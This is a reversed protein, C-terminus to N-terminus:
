QKEYVSLFNYMRGNARKGKQEITMTKLDKSVTRTGAAVIVGSKTMTSHVTFADVHELRVTDFDPNDSVPHSKQDEAVTIKVTGTKGGANTTTITLAVGNASRTYVRTERIPAPGPIYGSKALNLKWTGLTPDAAWASTAVALMAALLM